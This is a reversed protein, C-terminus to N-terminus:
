TTLKPFHDEIDTAVRRTAEADVGAKEAYTQWERTAELVERVIKRYNSIGHSDGVEYFDQITINEFRSNISMQHRQTWQGTPNFSHTIDFAPALRWEGDKPLHFNFNKTHDDRNMAVANFVMRRFAEALEVHGMNLARIVDFYQAYSHTDKLRYNLHDMACLSQQHIREGNQDFDFRKTLFHARPGEELLRCSSMKIGAELAMLYYAYEIRTFQEPADLSNRSGDASESVGDLKIIWPEFDSDDQAYGSRIENNKPNFQIVAKARAGGASSGVQILQSLAGHTTDVKLANKALVLRAQSIIDQLKIATVPEALNRNSPLFTLAGLARNGAYALRDLSTIERKNIGQEALWADIVANGFDDPLADAIMAPLGYYTNKALEPFSYPGRRNRMHLPALEIGGDIWDPSYEFAYLDINEDYVLGGVRRGWCFVEIFEVPRYNSM